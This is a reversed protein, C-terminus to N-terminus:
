FWFRLALNITRPTTLQRIKYYYSGYQEQRSTVTSDNFINSIDAIVSMRVAEGLGFQKEMRISVDKRAEYTFADGVANVNLQKVPTTLDPTMCYTMISTPLGSMYSASLGCMIDFPLLVTGQCKFHHPEGYYYMKGNAFVFNQPDNGLYPTLSSANGRSTGYGYSLMMQWRNSMRKNFIIEFGKQTRFPNDIMTSSKSKELNTVTYENPTLPNTRNYYPITFDDATGYLGDVGPCLATTLEYTANTLLLGAFNRGKRYYANVELSANKFLEREYGLIFEQIYPQKLSPDKVVTQTSPSIEYLKLWDTGAWTYYSLPNFRTEFSSLNEYLSQISEFYHGYHLKLVNKRDGLIDFAIGVRPALANQNYLVGVGEAPNKFWYNNFRLGYNITLRKSVTWSDQAYGVLVRTYSDQYGPMQEVMFMPYGLYYYEIRGEVPGSYVGHKAYQMEVGAKIEHSGFFDPVYHNVNLTNQFRWNKRAEFSYYNDYLVSNYVDMKAIADELGAQPKTNFEERYLGGKFELLTNASLTSTWNGIVSWRPSQYQPAIDGPVILSLLYNDIDAKQWNFSANIRNSKNIQYDMKVFFKPERDSAYDGEIGRVYSKAKGFEGNVFFWLKDRIIRGGLQVTADYSDGTEYKETAMSPSYWEDASYKGSNQSNWNKGHFRLEALGFFKNSGSKTVVNVVAGTFEGYEAPLGLGRVSAERIIHFSPAFSLTSAETGRVDVGDIMWSTSESGSGYASLTNSDIGPALALVSSLEMKMPVNILFDDTMVVGGPSSSSIDITPTSAVVMIEEKLSSQTLVFDVTLSVNANLLIGERIKKQFGEFEASVVYRGPPLSLFRYFGNKDTIYKFEGGILNSGSILVQVGRLSEGQEDTVHGHITGSSRIQSFGFAGFLSFMLLWATLFRSKNMQARGKMVIKLIGEGNVTKQKEAKM